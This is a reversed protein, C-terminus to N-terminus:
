QSHIDKSLHVYAALSFDGKENTIESTVFGSLQANKLRLSITNKHPVDEKEEMPLIATFEGALLGELYGTNNLESEPQEGIQIHIEGDSQFLLKIPIQDKISLIYGDWRGILNVQPEYPREAWAEYEGIIQGAADLFGPSMIEILRFVIDDAAQGTSNILCVAALGDSPIMSLTAQSGRVRGNTILWRRKDDLEISALGLAVLSGPVDSRLTHMMELTKTGFPRQGSFQKSSIHFMAYNLLDNLSAYMALSNQPLMYHPKLRTGEQSYIAAPTTYELGKYSDVFSNKMELPGYVGAILFEPYSMGTVNEILKELVLYAFNSYLYVEGPPFVVFGRNQILSNNSYQQRDEDRIFYMGGHPIGATMDLVRRVTVQELGGEFVTLSADGIYDSISQNLEVKGQDVLVMVATATISKGLSAIGYPTNPTSALKNEKDAWGISESWLIQGDKIASLSISPFEGDEIRKIIESRFTSFIQDAAVSFDKPPDEMNANVM